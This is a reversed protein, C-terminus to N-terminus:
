SLARFDGLNVWWVDLDGGPLAVNGLTQITLPAGKLICPMPDAAERLPDEALLRVQQGARLAQETFGPQRLWSDKETEFIGTAKDVLHGSVKRVELESRYASNYGDSETLPQFGQGRQTFAITLPDGDQLQELRLIHSNKTVMRLEQARRKLQDRGADEAQMALMKVKAEEVRRQREEAAIQQRAERLVKEPQEKSLRAQVDSRYLAAENGLFRELAAAALKNAEILAEREIKAKQEATQRDIELQALEEIRALFLAARQRAIADDVRTDVNIGSSVIGEVEAGLEQALRFYPNSEVATVQERLSQNEQTLRAIKRRKQGFM